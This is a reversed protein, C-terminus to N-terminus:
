TKKLYILVNNVANVQIFYSYSETQIYIGYPRTSSSLIFSNNMFFITTTLHRNNDFNSAM